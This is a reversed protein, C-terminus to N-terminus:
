IRMGAPRRPARRPTERKRGVRRAPRVETDEADSIAWGLREIFRLAAVEGSLQETRVSEDLLVPAPSSNNQDSTVTVRPM